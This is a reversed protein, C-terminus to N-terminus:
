AACSYFLRQAFSTELEGRVGAVTYYLTITGGDPSLIASGSWERSGPSLGDPLVPGLDRWDAGVRHLLRMRALAHRADPDPLIPASLAIFLTGGAIEASNGDIRQVPWYDWLDLTEIIRRQAPIIPAYSVSTADIRQVDDSTWCSTVHTKSM